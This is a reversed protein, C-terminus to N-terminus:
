IQKNEKFINYLSDKILESFYYEEKCTMAKYIEEMSSSKDLCSNAGSKTIDIVFDVYNSLTLRDVLILIKCNNNIKRIKEIHQDTITNDNFGIIVIDIQNLMETNERWFLRTVNEAQFVIALEPYKELCKKIGNIFIKHSDIIAVKKKEEM